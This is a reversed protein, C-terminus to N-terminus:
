MVKRELNVPSVRISASSSSIFPRTGDCDKFLSCACLNSLSHLELLAISLNHLVASSFMSFFVSESSTMCNSCRSDVSM